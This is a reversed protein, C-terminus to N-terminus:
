NEKDGAERHKQFEFRFDTRSSSAVGQLGYHPVTMMFLLRALWLHSVAQDGDQQYHNSSVTSDAAKWRMNLFRLTWTQLALRSSTALPSTISVQPLALPTSRALPIMTM